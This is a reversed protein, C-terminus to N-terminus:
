LHELLMLKYFQLIKYLDYPTCQVGSKNKLIYIGISTLGIALMLVADKIDVKNILLLVICAVGMAVAVSSLIQNIISHTKISKTNVKTNLLINIDVNFIEALKNITKIDPCSIDREWKSVAKDTVCMREALDMQTMNNEKRLEAIVKGLSKEM